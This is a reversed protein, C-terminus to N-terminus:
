PCVGEREGEGGEGRGRGGERGGEGGGREGERERGREGERGGERGRERERGREGERGRERERGREGERGGERGRGGERERGGMVKTDLIRIHSSAVDVYVSIWKSRDRSLYSVSENVVRIGHPSTVFRSGLYVVELRKYKESDIFSLFYYCSDTHTHINM